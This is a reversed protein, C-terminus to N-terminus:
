REEKLEANNGLSPEGVGTPATDAQPSTTKAALPPSNDANEAETRAARLQTALEDREIRLASFDRSCANYRERWYESSEQPDTTTPDTVQDGGRGESPLGTDM